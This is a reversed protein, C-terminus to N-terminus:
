TSAPPVLVAFEWPQLLLPDVAPGSEVNLLSRLRLEAGDTSWSQTAESLNFVVTCRRSHDLAGRQLVLLVGADREVVAVDRQRFDHFAPEERRLRLLQQYLQRLEKQEPNAEWNWNLRVSDFTAQEFPDPVEDSWAFRSFEERRGSRVADRLYPDGFDCFFPFPHTEGYEEGMFLMPIQPALLLLGAALRVQEPTALVTLREGLARNGIQDHNQVCVVFRDGDYHQAPRGHVRQRYHSFIGDYVFIERLAKALQRPPDHFDAYYGDREQTLLSHVCHHFDDSWQADLGYGNQDPHDLLTVDNLNSEAIVHICRQCERAMESATRQIESLIHVASTDHIEHVADLRFGDVHFDRIWDEINQLITQRVMGSLHGDVNIAAGWPTQHAETFYPGFERIYTGEPGFHNYVVDLILALGHQHCANVLRQLGAPGGYSNQVAFWYAGDYGWDREGPFQCVPMLQLATVGLDVLERLRPIVADFTGAATFTGVHLEYIVLDRREIGQWGADEWRFDSPQWVASLEHVGEPQWRSVPDPRVPGEDLRFGYRTGAAVDGLEGGFVGDAHATLRHSVHQGDDAVVILDVQQALPAWVRWHCHGDAKLTAGLREALM